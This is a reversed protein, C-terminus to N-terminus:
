SVNVFDCMLRSVRMVIKSLRAMMISVDSLSVNYIWM